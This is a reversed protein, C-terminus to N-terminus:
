STADSETGGPHVMVAASIDAFTTKLKFLTDLAHQATLALEEKVPDAVTSSLSTLKCSDTSPASPFTEIM